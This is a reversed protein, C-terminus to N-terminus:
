GEARSTEDSAITDALERLSVCFAHAGNRDYYNFCGARLDSQFRSGLRNARKHLDGIDLDSSEVIQRDTVFFDARKLGARGIENAMAHRDFGPVLITLNMGDDRTASFEFGGKILYAIAAIQIEQNRNSSQNYQIRVTSVYRM